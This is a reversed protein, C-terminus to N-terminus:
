KTKLFSGTHIELVVIRDSEFGIQNLKFVSNEIYDSVELLKLKQVYIKWCIQNKGKVLQGGAEWLIGPLIM